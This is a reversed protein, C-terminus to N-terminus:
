SPQREDDLIHIRRNRSDSSLARRSRPGAASLRLGSYGRSSIISGHGPGTDLLVGGSCWRRLVRRTSSTGCTAPKARIPTMLRGPRSRGARHAGLCLVAGSLALLLWGSPGPVPTAYEIVLSPRDAPTAYERSAFKIATSTQSEDGRLLWGHSGGPDDLWLQVDSVMSNSSWTFEQGVHGTLSSSAVAAFDGGPQNWESTPHLTHIWTADSATAPAGQGGDWSSTGEGWDAQVRHLSLPSPSQPGGTRHLHLTASTLLAGAPLSGAVDFALLARRISGSSQSTRGAFVAPGAGNSLSGDATEILTNDRTAALSVTNASASAVASAVILSVTLIGAVRWISGGIVM